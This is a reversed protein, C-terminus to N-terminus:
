LWENWFREVRGAIGSVSVVEYQSWERPFMRRYQPELFREDLLAVVGIDEATRIVRGASQLVKNMGPYRYAYDFGNEGQADFHQKLLERECGVQPIGTGVIVAGILSDRKLDIGESFIGGMVCFGILVSADAAEQHFRLLFEERKAESMYDEQVICEMFDAQYYGEMFCRYVQELFLHSPLFVMYNGHRQRVVEYIYEAIRLFERESRRAYKSTVDNAIFLAKKKEDFTSKAYVEYDTPEGGLLKKYYQIPLLTASFLITSRGKHMCQRLNRAPNVCFLKLMFDGNDLLQSYVVYNEDMIEYINLFHAAEFYFDLLEKKNPFTDHEDLFDDIAAYLHNLMRVFSDIEEERRYSECQRKMVLLEKNCKDLLKAIRPSLEKVLRKTGLFPDKNLAASYMERGRDLLNHTEDILFVYDRKGLGDAFFRKLYVRPDFVYNYDCIVADAFLSMDLSLEFPCVQHKAAYAQVKERTFHAEHTLLDYMADNIRDYHGDAYPCAEPNCEAEEKATEEQKMFCIKDKATLVITKMQLGNQQLLGFCEQAVTRTITKATLYFIKEILGEGMSKVAPFVTSITKGVGTPAELFLKRKHYITQYVYTVLEKQGERYPFPFALQRISATRVTNWTFQFDAWKKYELMLDEFWGKLEQFTYDEHFYKLEETEMQCYTMRVGIQDLQHESAYMFAYCKAQALHVGVPATIRKLDRYTGKIEDIVVKNEEKGTEEPTHMGWNHDIIGDARGEIIIDYEESAWTYNLGIEAHYESGMRRQLMKHIRSGEQMATDSGSSKRNDISGERLIFEVLQRVSVRLEM